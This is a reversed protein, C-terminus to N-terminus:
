KIAERISSSTLTTPAKAPASNAVNRLGMGILLWAPWTMYALAEINESISFCALILFMGLALSSSLQSQSRTLLVLIAM